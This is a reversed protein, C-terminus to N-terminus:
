TPSSPASTRGTARTTRGCPNAPATTYPGTGAPAMPEGGFTLPPAVFPAVFLLGAVLLSAAANGLSGASAYASLPASLKDSRFVNGIM